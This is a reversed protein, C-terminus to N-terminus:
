IDSPGALVAEGYSGREERVVLHHKEVGQIFLNLKAGLKDLLEHLESYMQNDSLSGCEHLCELHDISECCSAHAFLLFRIYEQKYRRRGYGEVVNARISKASRRIQSGQEYMEFKPLELTMKHVRVSAERALQWIELKKYGQTQDM